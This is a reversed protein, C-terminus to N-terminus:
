RIGAKLLIVRRRDDTLHLRELENEIALRDDGKSRHATVVLWELMREDGGQYLTRAASAAIVRDPDDLLPRLLPAAVQARAGELLSLGQRREYRDKSELMKRVIALGKPSGLRCLGQAAALRTSESSSKLFGELADAQRRDGSDGAGVLMAARVEPEGEARAKEVLLRGVKPNHMAGLARAAERRVGLTPDSLLPELAAVNRSKLKGLGTAASMRVASDEDRALKVLAPESERVALASLAFAVNRRQREDVGRVHKALEEAAYTEEGLYQLRTVAQELGNGVLIQEILQEAEARHRYRKQLSQASAGQSLVLVLSFPLALRRM